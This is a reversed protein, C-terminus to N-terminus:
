NLRLVNESTFLLRMLRDGGRVDTAEAVFVIRPVSFRQTGLFLMFEFVPEPCSSGGAQIFIWDSNASAERILEILNEGTPLHNSIRFWGIGQAFSECADAVVGLGSAVDPVSQTDYVVVYLPNFQFDNALSALLVRQRELLM